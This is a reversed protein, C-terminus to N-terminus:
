KRLYTERGLRKLGMARAWRRGNELGDLGSNGFWGKWDKVLVMSEVEMVRKERAEAAIAM